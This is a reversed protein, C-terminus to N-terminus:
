PELFILGSQNTGLFFGQVNTQGQLIVAKITTLRKSQPHIFSGNLLGSAASVALKLGNTGGILFVNNNTLRVDNVIPDLLNGSSLTVTGNTLALARNTPGALPPFYQSGEIKRGLAFGNTYYSGAKPLKIWVADGQLNKPANTEFQVWSMLLGRGLYLSSYLPWWGSRSVPATQSFVTNDALTGSVTVGGTSAVNVTAIGTGAIDNSGRLVMTYRGNFPAPNTANFVARDAEIAVSFAGDSITGTLRESGVLDLILQNTLAPKGTRPVRITSTGDVRFGGSFLHTGGALLLRGSFSGKDALTLSIFGANTFHISNTDGFLGNFTGKRAIFPNAVFNANLLLNSSMLINWVPSTSLVTGVADTWNSFLNGPRPAATIKYGRGIELVQRNTLGTISGQGNTALSIANTVVYVLTRSNTLSSRGLVDLSRVRIFNTGPSLTVERNWNTTGSATVFARGNLQVEVSAVQLNDASKGTLLAVTNTLRANAPPASITVTPRIVDPSVLRFTVMDSANTGGLNDTAVARVAYIGNTANTLTMQYPPNTVTGLLTAGHLFEVKAVFGDPDFANARILVLAKNTLFAGQVPVTIAVTPRVNSDIVTVSGVMSSPHNECHYGFIGAQNFTHLCSNVMDNGCLPDLGTGTVTHMGGRNTFLVTEGIQITLDNPVFSFDQYTILHRIVISVPTSTSSLGDNDTAVASIRYNGAAVNSLTLSYPLTAIRGAVNTGLYFVVNTVAVDDVATATLTFTAPGDFVASNTPSEVSVQPPFVAPSVLVSATMADALHQTCYYSYSGPTSFTFEFFEFPPPESDFLLDSSHVDHPNIGFNMWQVTDGGSINVSSPFYYNDRAEVKVTAARAGGCASFFLFGLGLVQVFTSRMSPLYM